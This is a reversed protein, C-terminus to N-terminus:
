YVLHFFYDNRKRHHCRKHRTGVFFIGFMCLLITKSRKIDTQRVTAVIKLASARCGFWQSTPTASEHRIRASAFRISYSPATCRKIIKEPCCVANSRAIAFASVNIYSRVVSQITSVRPANPMRQWHKSIGACSCDTRCICHAWLYFRLFAKHRSCRRFAGIYPCLM